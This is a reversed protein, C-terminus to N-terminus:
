LDNYGLMKGEEGKEALAMVWSRGGEGTFLGFMEDLDEEEEERKSGWRDPEGACTLTLFRQMDSKRLGLSNGYVGHCLSPMKTLIGREIICKEGNRIAATLQRSLDPFYPFLSRLSILFGPAGHCFQVLTDKTYPISSPFNGSPLQTALLDSLILSVEKAIEPSSSSLIVQTIIGITGHVAGLYEKGHWMWPQRSTLICTIVDQIASEVISTSQAPVSRCLRLLYLLGSLGYLWEYSREGPQTLLKPVYSCLKQVSSDDHNLIATLALTTLKENAIGCNTPKPDRHDYSLSINLYARSWHRLSNSKVVLDPFLSSLALFLFSISTPGYYFGHFAIQRDSIVPPYNTLIRDLSVLLESFADETTLAPLDPYNPNPFYRDPMLAHAIEDSAAREWRLGILSECLDGRSLQRNSLRFSALHTPNSAMSCGHSHTSVNAISCAYAKTLASPRPRIPYKSTGRM